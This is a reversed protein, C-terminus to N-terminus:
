PPHINSRINEAACLHKDAALRHFPETPRPDDDEAESAHAGPAGFRQHATPYPVQRQHVGVTDIHGIDVTLQRGEGGGDSPLLYLHEALTEEVDVGLRFDDGTLFSEGGLIRFESNLIIIIHYISDVADGVLQFQNQKRCCIRM